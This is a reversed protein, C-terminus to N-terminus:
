RFITLFRLRELLPTREDKAENLVRSNFNLWSLDRLVFDPSPDLLIDGENSKKKSVKKAKKEAM